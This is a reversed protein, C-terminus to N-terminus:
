ECHNLRPVRGDLQRTLFRPSGTPAGVAISSGTTTNATTNMCNDFAAQQCPYPGVFQYGIPEAGPDAVTIPCSCIIENATLPQSFGPFRRGRTSAFCIGGDCQAYAGNSTAAPCTYIAKDGGLEVSPPLSYTSMMYGNMYGQRNLSCIDRGSVTDSESISSGFEVDCKCYAVLNYVFCSASACLAYRQRTCISFPKEQGGAWSPACVTIAIAAQILAVRLTGGCCLARTRHVAAWGPRRGGRGEPQGGM